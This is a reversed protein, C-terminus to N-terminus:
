NSIAWDVEQTTIPHNLNQRHLEQLKSIPTENLFDETNEVNIESRKYLEQYYDTFVQLKEKTSRVM